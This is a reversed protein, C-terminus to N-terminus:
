LGSMAVISYGFDPVFMNIHIVKVLHLNKGEGLQSRVDQAQERTIIGESVLVDIPSVNERNAMQFARDVQEETTDIKKVKDKTQRRGRFVEKIAKQTPVYMLVEVIYQVDPPTKKCKQRLKEFTSELPPGLLKEFLTFMKDLLFHCYDIERINKTVTVDRELTLLSNIEEKKM